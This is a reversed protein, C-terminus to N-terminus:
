EVDGIDRAIFSYQEQIVEGSSSIVQAQATLYVDKIKKVTHNSTRDTEDGFVAFIEFPKLTYFKDNSFSLTQSKDSQIKQAFQLFERNGLGRIQNIAQQFQFADMNKKLIIRSGPVTLDPRVLVGDENVDVLIGEKRQRISEAIISLYNTTVFNIVFSGQILINGKAVTDFYTSSYGYFPTKNTVTTFNLSSIEDLFVDDYYVQAQGGSYYHTKYVSRAM